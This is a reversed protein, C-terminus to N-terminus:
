PKLKLTATMLFHHVTCWFNIDGTFTDLVELKMSGVYRIGFKSAAGCEIERLVANPKASKDEGCALVPDKTENDAPPQVNALQKITIVGHPLGAAIQVDIIDGIKLDDIVLPTGDPKSPTKGDSTWAPTSNPKIVHTDAAVSATTSTVIAGLVLSFIVFAAFSKRM